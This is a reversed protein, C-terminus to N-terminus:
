YNTQVDLLASYLKQNQHNTELCGSKRLLSGACKKGFVRRVEEIFNDEEEDLINTMNHDDASLGEKFNNSSVASSSCEEEEDEEKAGRYKAAAVTAAAEAM